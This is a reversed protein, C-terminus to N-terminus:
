DGHKGPVPHFFLGAYVYAIAEDTVVRFGASSRWWHGPDYDSPPVSIVGVSTERGFAKEFLLRSRRAHPGHTLVTVKPPPLGTEAFWRQLALAASYTRDQRVWGSAVARIANTGLGLKRLTASGLEAYTQYESLPAGQEIPGGTVFIREYAGEKIKAAAVRLSADSLWGEVVLVGGALPRNMALFPHLTKLFISLLAVFALAIALGGRWTPLWVERRRFLVLAPAKQAM